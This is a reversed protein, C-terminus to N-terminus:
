SALAPKSLPTKLGNRKRTPYASFLFIICLEPPWQIINVQNQSNIFYMQCPACRQIMKRQLDMVILVVPEQCVSFLFINLASDLQFWVEITRRWSRRKRSTWRPWSTTVTTPRLISSMESSQILSSLKLSHSVRTVMLGSSIVVNVDFADTLPPSCKSFLILMLWALHLELLMLKTTWIEQFSRLRPFRSTLLLGVM